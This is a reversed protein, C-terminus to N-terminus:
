LLRRGPVRGMRCNCRMMMLDRDTEINLLYVPTSIRDLLGMSCDIRWSLRWTLVSSIRPFQLFWISDSWFREYKTESSASCGVCTLSCTRIISHCRCFRASTRNCGYQVDSRVSGSGDPRFSGLALGGRAEACSPSILRLEAREAAPGGDGSVRLVMRAVRM